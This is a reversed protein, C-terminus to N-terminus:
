HAMRPFGTWGPLSPAKYGSLRVCLPCLRAIGVSDLEDADCIPLTNSENGCWSVLDGAANREPPALHNVGDAFKGIIKM